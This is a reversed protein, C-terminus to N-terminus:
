HNFLFAPTNLLAWAIDQAGYLRRNALQKASLEAARRMEVLLPDPALPLQARAVKDQFEKLEPDVPRPQKADAVAKSLKQLEGDQARHYDSLAKQQKEDRKEPAIAFIASINPPHGFSIPKTADTVGLRFKGLAHQGGDLLQQMKVTLIIGSEDEVKDKIEFSAVHDKGFEPAVAWGNNAGPVQGDIATKVDYSQQSFDARANELSIRRKEAPKSKPAWELVVETLVFNGDDARGPGSKPLRADALAELRVGTLKKLSTEAIITYTDKARNGSVFISGNADVELKSKATSTAEKISVATWPTQKGGTSVWEQIKVPLTAEYAKLAKDAAAVREQQQRDLEKERPATQAQYAALHGQAEKIDADRQTQRKADLPKVDEERKALDQQVAKHDAEIAGMLKLGAAVEKETAPRNLIRVYLEDVLKRDDAEAKVLKVIANDADSIAADVTPGTIMALVPALQLDNVRECECASERAPRGLTGLFGDVMGGGADPLSAARTGPPVGPIRTQTGTAFYIADFLVEAPLRRPTAHSYNVTDDANWKHTAVSLQYARSKCILTIMHRTNFKSAVFEQSLWDLLEPNSAPNGARIDDLPEILGVGLLYGWLRNVYSRAFYRNDPSTMWAAMQSRRPADAKAAHTAPYPFEPNTLAGTRDHKVEGQGADEVIEYLPKAGEVATGGINRDGAAPDKKLSVRAFYAATQYYQDQTWREFPHDHCKNCNFRTALWLHTSNEMIADPTRLIKYYSAPPNDKNSGAATLIKYAFENYPTNMKVENRIWDRFTKAGEAGLFKGNVQLLDAWKNSWHDVYLDGGILKDIAEDRKIRTARTDAMFARVQESSPPLGTLDLYVRRLFEVDSCLDSPLIKMRQWKASVLEDVRGWQDPAQWVFGSRDGMVTVTTAAYAGEYRALMAAEGRRLATVLGTRDTTAIDTNSSEVFADATVDRRRGDTYTAVIQMQQRGGIQQMVPNSPFVEIGKIRPTSLDLKAGAAIWQYLIRYAESGPRVVQGGEHPVSGTSKLLMLSDEPSAPNIRRASLEDTLARVDYLPDYGRLSLKFGRKGDKAGHCTGANCGAKSLTPMVDRVYDVTFPQGFGSVRVPVTASKGGFAIELRGEGDKLATLWGRLSVEAVGGTVTTKVMRTADLTDGTTSRLTVLVQAHDTRGRLEIAKPFVELSAVVFDKPLTELKLEDANLAPPPVALVPPASQAVTVPLFTKVMTGNATDLLRIKGDSGAAALTKGNPSFALAYIGSETVDVKAVQKMQDSEFKDLVNEEQPTRGAAPKAYLAAADAPVAAAGDVAWIVIQGKGDLASAAAFAKGDRRYRVDCVRGPMDPYRRILNANDGIQRASQRFIRFVQPAGDSGGVLIANRNPHSDIAGIGGKLAGPTISTINDIFRATALLTLKATMDRGVSIVHEGKVDFSTGLVWDNHAGQFFVQKGSLADIARVSNDGCGFAIVAGNPSWCAGFVTDFSVVHSLLLSRKEVDWVQVEGMRAPRGGTVALRKGDPSFRVSEIRESIGVLRALLGTGDAKHLLVENFGAVALLAGDPSWDLATIVPPLTYVPPHAADYIQATAAPSDDTAGEAVWRTILEVEAAHLPEKGKPMEAKGDKAPRILELLHSKAADKPVVAMKKSEGGALLRKFDTMVYGGKDKAPQHCGQCQAQFIPRIDKYFSVPRTEAASAAPVAVALALTGWLIRLFMTM